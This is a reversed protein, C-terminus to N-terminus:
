VVVYDCDNLKNKFWTEQRKAYNRTLQQSLDIADNKSVEGNLYQIIQELGIAKPYKTGPFENLLHQAEELAGNQIMTIFRENIRKYLTQREPRFWIKMSNDLDIYKHNNQQWESIPKNTYEFVGLARVIRQSDNKSIKVAAVPDISSLKQYMAHIGFMKIDNLIKENIELPISPIATLGNLLSSLYMGTGGIIVPIINKKLANRIEKAIMELWRAVSFDKDNISTMGYLHHNLLSPPQATIIPIEKYVQMSDANIIIGNGIKNLLKLGLSSKGSATAGYIIITKFKSSKFAEIIENVYM